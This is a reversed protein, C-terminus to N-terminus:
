STLYKSQTNVSPDISSYTFCTFRPVKTTPHTFSSLAVHSSSFVVLFM